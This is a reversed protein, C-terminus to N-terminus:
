CLYSEDHRVIKFFFFDKMAIEHVGFGMTQRGHIGIGIEIGIRM